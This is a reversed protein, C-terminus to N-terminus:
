FDMSRKKYLGMLIVRFSLLCYFLYSLGTKRFVKDTLLFMIRPPIRGGLSASNRLLVFVKNLYPMSEFYFTWSNKRYINSIKDKVLGEKEALSYIETGPFFTLSFLVFECPVSIESLFMLTKVLDEEEEWPNDLIVDYHKISIKDKFEDIIKCSKLIQSNSYFRKYLRQIKESGSQIGMRILFLGASTLYKFKECDVASPHVGALGFPMKIDKKYKESFDKIEELSLGLFNDDQFMIFRIFPMTKKVLALERIVNDVSRKRFLKQGAYMKNLFNNCCYSCGFPCGRTFMIRYTKTDMENFPWLDNDLLIEGAKHWKGKTIIYQNEFDYDQFPISDLDQILPRVPNIVIKGKEDKFCLNRVNRYSERKEIKEALEVMAGEGEGRCVIDAYELCEEPSVTPHIGGWVIPVNLEKKLAKTIQASDEFFNTALSFGILDSDKVLEILSYINKEGYVNKKKDPLFSFRYDKESVFRKERPFLILKVRHGSLKLSSSIIRMGIFSFISYPSILAINM